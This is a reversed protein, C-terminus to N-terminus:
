YMIFDQFYETAEKELAAKRASVRGTRQLKTIAKSAVLEEQEGKFELLAPEIRKAVAM